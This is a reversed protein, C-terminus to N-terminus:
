LQSLESPRPFMERFSEDQQVAKGLRSIEAPFSGFTEMRAHPVGFTLEETRWSRIEKARM